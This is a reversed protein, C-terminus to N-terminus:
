GRRGGTRLLDLNCGALSSGVRAGTRAILSAVAAWVRGKAEARQLATKGDADRLSADAGYELLRRVIAGYQEMTFTNYGRHQWEVVAWHLSTLGGPSGPSTPTPTNPSVGRKLAATVDAVNSDLIATWLTLTEVPFESGTAGFRILRKAMDTNRRTLATHLPWSACTDHFSIRGASHDLLLDVIETENRSIALCLPIPANGRAAQPDAGHELLLRVVEKPGRSAALQLASLGHKPSRVQDAAWLDAGSVILLAAIEEQCLIIARRLPTENVSDNSKWSGNMEAGSTLLLKVVELQADKEVAFTLPSQGLDDLLNPNAENELLFSIVGHSHKAQAAYHLPTWGDRGSSLNVIKRRRQLSTDKSRKIKVRSRLTRKSLMEALIIRAWVELGLYCAIHFRPPRQFVTSEAACSQRWRKWWAYRSASGKAFFPEDDVLSTQVPKPCHHVHHPWHLTAYGCLLPHSSREDLAGLCTRALSDQANAFSARVREAVVDDDRTDRLFYDRASQHVLHVKDQQVVIIPECLKVYDRLVQRENMSSPVHYRVVDALEDISLPRVALTV